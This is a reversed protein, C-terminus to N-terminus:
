LALPVPRPAQQAARAPCVYVQPVCAVVPTVEAVSLSSHVEFGQDFCITIAHFDTLALRYRRVDIDSAGFSRTRRRLAVAVPGPAPRWRTRTCPERSLAVLKVRRIPRRRSQVM